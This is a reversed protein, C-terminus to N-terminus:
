LTSGGWFTKGRQFSGDIPHRRSVQLCDVFGSVGGFRLIPAGPAGM